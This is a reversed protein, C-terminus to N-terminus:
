AGVGASAAVTAVDRLPTPAYGPWGRIDAAAERFGALSLVEAPIEGARPNLLFRFPYAGSM